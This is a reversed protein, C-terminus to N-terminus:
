EERSLYYGLKKMCEAYGAEFAAQRNGLLVATAFDYQATNARYPAVTAAYQQCQMSEVNFRGPDSHSHNRWVNRACGATLLVAAVVATLVVRSRSDV